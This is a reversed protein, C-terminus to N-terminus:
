SAGEFLCERLVNGAQGVDLVRALVVVATEVCREAIHFRQLHAEVLGNRRAFADLALHGAQARQDFGDGHFAVRIARAQLGGRGFERCQTLLRVRVLVVLGREGVHALLHRAQLGLRGFEFQEAAVDIVRCPPGFAQLLGQFFGEARMGVQLLLETLSVGQARPQADFKVLRSGGELRRKGLARRDLVLEGLQLLTNGREFGVQRARVLLVRRGFLRM